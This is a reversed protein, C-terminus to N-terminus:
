KKGKEFHELVTHNEKAKITVLCNREKKREKIQNKKDSKASM